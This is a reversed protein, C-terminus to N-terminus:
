KRAPKVQRGDLVSELLNTQRSERPVPVFMRATEGRGARYIAQDLLKPTGDALGEPTIAVWGKEDALRLVQVLEKGTAIDWLRVLGNDSDTMAQTGGPLLAVSRVGHPVYFSQALKGSEIDWVTVTNVNGLLARKGGPFIVGSKAGSLKDIGSTSLKRGSAVDWFWLGRGDRAQNMVMMAVQGDPSFLAFGPWKGCEELDRVKALSKTNWLAADKFGAILLLRSDPSFAHARGVFPGKWEDLPKATAADWLVLSDSSTRIALRSGDPSFTAQWVKDRMATEDREVFTTRQKSRTAIEWWEMQCGPGPKKESFLVIRRGQPDVAFDDYRTQADGLRATAQGSRLDWIVFQGNLTCVHRGDAMLRSPGDCLRLTDELRRVVKGSDAEVVALGRSTKCRLYKGDASWHPESYVDAESGLERLKKGDRVDWLMVRYTLKHDGVQHAAAAVIKGDPRFCATSFCWQDDLTRLLRGNSADWLLLEGRPRGEARRGATLVQRGDSSIDVAYIECGGQFTRLRNGTKVDWLIASKDNLSGTITKKGDMSFAVATVWNDHGSFSVLQRGSSTDWLAARGDGCGTVFKTADPSFAVAGALDGLAAVHLRKGTRADWLIAEPHGGGTLVKTGDASITAFFIPDTPGRFTQLPAGTEADWLIAMGDTTGGVFQRGDASFAWTYLSTPQDRLLELPPEDARAVGQAVM